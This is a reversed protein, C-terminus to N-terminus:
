NGLQTDITTESGGVATATSEGLRYQQIVLDSRTTDRPDPRRMKALDAPRAVALGLNRRTACGYDLSLVNMPNFSTPASWDGCRPLRVDARMYSLQITENRRESVPQDHWQVEAPHVGNQLLRAEIVARGGAADPTGVVLLRGAASARYGDLFRGFRADGAPPLRGLDTALELKVVRQEVVLPHMQRLDSAAPDVVCGASLWGLGAAVTVRWFLVNACPRAM